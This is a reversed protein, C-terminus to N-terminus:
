QVLVAPLSDAITTFATQLQASTPAYFYLGNGNTAAGQMAAQATATGAEASFTITDIVLQDNTRLTTAITPIDTNGATAVGDTLLIITRDATTRARPGTLETAAMNLGAQINTDGLLPVAGWANMATTISSYNSTLQVDLSAETASFTGFSFTEAYTVLGVHVDLNRAQLISIFTNVASTLSAWRSLTPSPSTFYNTILPGPRDSPYSFENVSLDFAMSASRDLVLIIDHSIRTVVSTQSPTFRSLPLFTAMFLPTSASGNVQVSNTPTGNKTFAYVGNSGAAANGFLVNSSSLSLPTGAVPNANAITQAFSIATTKNQSAGYNVLAAKASSDCAVRLQERIMQMYAVNVAFATLLLLVPITIATLLTIAGLRGREAISRHIFSIPQM